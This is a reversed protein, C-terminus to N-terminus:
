RQILVNLPMPALPKGSHRAGILGGAARARRSLLNRDRIQRKAEFRFTLQPHEPNCLFKTITRECEFTGNQRGQFTNKHPSM